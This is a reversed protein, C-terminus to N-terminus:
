RGPKAHAIQKERQATMRIPVLEISDSRVKNIRFWIGRWPIQHGVEFALQLGERKPITNTAVNPVAYIPDKKKFPWM